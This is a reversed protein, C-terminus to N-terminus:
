IIHFCQLQVDSWARVAEGFFGSMQSCRAMFDPIEEESRGSFLVSVM